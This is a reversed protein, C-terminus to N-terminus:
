SANDDHASNLAGLQYFSMQMIPHSAYEAAGCIAVDLEGSLIRRQASIIATPGATCADAFSQTCGKISLARAIYQAAQNQRLSDVEAQIREVDDSSFHDPSEKWLEHLTNASFINKNCGVFLGLRDQLADASIGAQAYAKHAAFVAMKTSMAVNHESLQPYHKEALGIYEDDSRSCIVNVPSTVSQCINIKSLLSKGNYLAEFLAEVDTYGPVFIGVGTIAVSDM